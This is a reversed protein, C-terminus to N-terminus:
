NVNYVFGWRTNAIEGVMGWSPRSAPADKGSPAPSGLSVMGHRTASPPLFLRVRGRGGEGGPGEPPGHGLREIIGAWVAGARGSRRRRGVLDDALEDLMPAHHRPRPPDVGRHALEERQEVDGPGVPRGIGQLLSETDGAPVDAHVQALQDGPPDDVLDVAL